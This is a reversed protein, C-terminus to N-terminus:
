IKGSGPTDRQSLRRAERLWNGGRHFSGPFPPKLTFSRPWLRAGVSSSCVTPTQCISAMGTRLHARFVHPAEAPALWHLPFVKSKGYTQTCTCAWQGGLNRTSAERGRSLLYALIQSQGAGAETAVTPELSGSAKHLQEGQFLRQSGCHSQPSPPVARNRLVGLERSSLKIAGRIQSGLMGLM